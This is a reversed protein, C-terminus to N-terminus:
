GEVGFHNGQAAFDLTKSLFNLGPFGLGMLLVTFRLVPPCHVLLGELPDGLPVLLNSFQLRIDSLQPLLQEAALRLLAAHILWRGRQLLRGAIAAASLLAAALTMAASVVRVQRGLFDEQVKGGLLTTARLTAQRIRLERPRFVALRNLDLDVGM